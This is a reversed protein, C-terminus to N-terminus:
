SVVNNEHHDEENLKYFMLTLRDLEVTEAPILSKPVGKEDSANVPRLVNNFLLCTQIMPTPSEELTEHSTNLM